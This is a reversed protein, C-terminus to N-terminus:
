RFPEGSSGYVTTRSGVATLLLLLLLLSLCHQYLCRGQCTLTSVSAFRGRQQEKRSGQVMRVYGIGLHSAPGGPWGRCYVRARERSHRAM